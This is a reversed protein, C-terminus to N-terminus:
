KDTLLKQVVIEKRLSLSDKFGVSWRKKTSEIYAKLGMYELESLGKM